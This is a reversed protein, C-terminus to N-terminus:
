MLFERIIKLYVEPQEIAIVHGAVPVVVLKHNPFLDLYEMQYGWQQNCCQGRMLLLPINSGKLRPRPDSVDALSEMTMVSVYYGNGGLTPRAKATDCVVSKNLQASLLTQFDDAEADSAIKFGFTTAFWAMTRSRLTATKQNGARNTVLPAKIHFSDPAKIDQLARNVPYIPGPGTLILKEVQEPHDAIFLSALIAGWSQAILIVKEAGTQQIIAELDRKHRDATYARIDSLRDSGGSGIQDYLYIDYGNEALPALMAITRESIFGGPGGQLFIVPSPKRIGQAPIQTYAIHSGTPLDWYQTNPNKRFDPVQYIRPTFVDLLLIFFGISLVTGTIRITKKLM